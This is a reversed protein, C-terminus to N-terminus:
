SERPTFETLLRRCAELIRPATAQMYVALEKDLQALYADSYKARVVGIPRQDTDSDVARFPLFIPNEQEGLEHCLRCITRCGEVLPLRTELMETAAAVVQAEKSKRGEMKM